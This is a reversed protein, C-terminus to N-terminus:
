TLSSLSSTSNFTLNCICRPHVDVTFVLTFVDILPTGSSLVTGSLSM